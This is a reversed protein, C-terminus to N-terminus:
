APQKLLRRLIKGSASKPIADIFEVERIQKYSSVQDAVFKKIEDADVQTDPKLTVFAKPVEGAEVDAIGIVAVDAVAPHSVILDELEAPAVQFGKYKILEKLRDVIFMHGDGDIKAMDGTHLWGEPTLCEATAAPHNFYGKMVQPGRVCLEGVEDVALDDGNENVIRCETDAVAGGCSGAKFDDGATLHSVPSMETMGYGQVVQCDIRRSAEEGLEAGLPAAGSFVERLSSIDFKDVAPHKALGLIIPPVAFLHTIKYREVLSLAQEMDFRSMTIITVGDAILSNMLVQMGYIHFFPLVALAVDTSRYGQAANTQVVNAVLNYHSLMVGKPKGTTGSSYPLVAINDNPSLETQPVPEDMVEGLRLCRPTDPLDTDTPEDLLIITDIAVSGAAELLAPLCAAVTFAVKPKCDNLQDAIETATYVPNVTTVTAALRLVAHFAIAFQPSNPAIVAVVEGSEVGLKHLGGALGAIDRQMAEFTVTEHTDGNIAALADPAIRGDRVKAFVVDGLPVKPYDQSKLKSRFIQNNMSQGSPISAQQM